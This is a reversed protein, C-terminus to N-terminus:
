PNEKPKPPATGIVLGGDDDQTVSVRVKGVRARSGDVYVDAWVRPAVAQIALLVVPRLARFRALPALRRLLALWHQGRVKVSLPVHCHHPTTTM